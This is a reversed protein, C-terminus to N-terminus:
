RTDWHAGSTWSASRTTMSPALILIGARQHIVDHRLCLASTSAVHLTRMTLSLRIRTMCMYCQQTGGILHFSAYWVQKTNPTQQGRFCQKCRNFLSLADEKNDYTPFLLKHYLQRLIPFSSTTYIPSPVVIAHRSVRTTPTSYKNMVEEELEPISSRM